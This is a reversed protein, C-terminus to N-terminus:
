PEMLGDMRYWDQQMLWPSPQWGRPEDYNEEIARLLWGTSEAQGHKRMWSYYDVKLMVYEPDYQGALRKARSNQIGHKVLIAAAAQQQQEEEEEEEQEVEVEEEQETPRVPGADARGRGQYTERRERKRGRETRESSTMAAQRQEFAPLFWRDGQKTIIGEDDADDKIQSLAILDQELDEAPIRLRWAIQETPPLLGDRDLEGALLFLEITRRWLRDSLPGMKPDDLLEHWLKIWYKSKM